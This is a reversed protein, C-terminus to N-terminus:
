MAAIMILNGCTDDLVASTVPGQTTPEGTFSVGLGTLRDYEKHVDDVGFSAAPIGADFLTKKFVQAAPKGALQIQANWDPELLLEVEGGEPSVVTLFRADGAPIDQKQIFGLKGTYFELAKAQDDVLVSTLIIKM